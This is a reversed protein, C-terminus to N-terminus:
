YGMLNGYRDRHFSADGFTQQAVRARKMFLGVDEEDTMGIGGHIQVAENTILEIMECAKAKALSALQPVDNRNEDLATLAEMVTSKTLELECFMLAARHKLAQFTGIQVGFQERMKLYDISRRFAELGSGLMEAALGIRAGDLVPELIEFGGDLSGLLATADLQVDNIALNAANRSDVMTTRTCVLGDANGDVLFMSLGHADNSEGSTRAVVIFQDAVHGDLVFTKAGNLLYGTENRVASTGIQTPTHRLAEDMALAVIRDGAAIAGLIEEKQAESGAALVLPASVLVTSILPTAALTHGSEEMIQGLGKYGFDVGGYAEPIVVGAWGMEAMEHWAARDFGTEDQSDRLTRMAAIPMKEEFYGHAADKLLTQEENLLMSM